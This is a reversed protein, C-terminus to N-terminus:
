GMAYDRSQFKLATGGSARVHDCNNVAFRVFWRYELGVYLFYLLDLVGNM